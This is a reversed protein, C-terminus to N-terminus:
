APNEPFSGRDYPEVWFPRGLRESLKPKWYGSVLHWNPSKRSGGEGQRVKPERRPIQYTKGIWSPEFLTARDNRHAGFGGGGSRRVQDIEFLEPRIAKLMMVQLVLAITARYLMQSEDLSEKGAWGSDQGQGGYVIAEGRVSAMGSHGPLAMNVPISSYLLKRENDSGYLPFSYGAINGSEEFDEPEIFAFAIAGIGRGAWLHDGGLPLMFIGQRAFLPLARLDLTAPLKSRQLAQVLNATLWFVPCGQESLRRSLLAAKIRGGHASAFAQLASEPLPEIQTELLIREFVAHLRAYHAPAYGEADRYKIRSMKQYYAHQQVGKLADSYEPRNWEYYM